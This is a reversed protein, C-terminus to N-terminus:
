SEAILAELKSPLITNALKDAIIKAEDLDEVRKHVHLHIAVINPDFRDPNYHQHSTLFRAGLPLQKELSDRITKEKDAYEIAFQVGKGAFRGYPFKTKYKVEIDTEVSIDHDHRIISITDYLQFGKYYDQEGLKITCSGIGNELCTSCKADAEKLYDCFKRM